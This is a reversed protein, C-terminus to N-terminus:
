LCVAGVIASMALNFTDFNIGSLFWLIGTGVIIGAVMGLLLPMFRKWSDYHGIHHLSSLIDCAVLLPLMVGMMQTTGRPGMGVGVVPVALVGVGGGFGANSIGTILVAAGVCFYYQIPSVGAPLTPLLSELM